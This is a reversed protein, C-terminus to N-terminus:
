RRKARSVRPWSGAGPARDPRTDEGAEGNILKILVLELPPEAIALNVRGPRRKAPETDFM